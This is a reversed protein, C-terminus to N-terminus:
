ERTTPCEPPPCPDAASLAKVAALVTEACADILGSRALLIATGDGTDIRREAPDADGCVVSLSAPLPPPAQTEPRPFPSERVIARAATMKKLSSFLFL